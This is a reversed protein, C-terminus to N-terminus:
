AKRRWFDGSEPPSKEQTKHSNRPRIGAIRCHHRGWRGPPGRGWLVTQAQYVHGDGVRRSTSPGQLPKLNMNPLDAMITIVIKPHNVTVWTDWSHWGTIMSNLPDAGWGLLMLPVWYHHTIAMSPYRTQHMLQHADHTYTPSYCLNDFVRAPVAHYHLVLEAPRKAVPASAPPDEPFVLKKFRTVQEVTETSMGPLPYQWRGAANPYQCTSVFFEEGSFVLEANRTAGFDSEETVFRVQNHSLYFPETERPDVTWGELLANQNSHRLEVKANRIYFEYYSGYWMSVCAPIYIDDGYYYAHHDIWLEDRVTEAVYTLFEESTIM